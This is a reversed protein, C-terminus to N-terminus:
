RVSSLLLVFGRADDFMPNSQVKYTTYQTNKCMYPHSALGHAASGDELTWDGGRDTHEGDDYCRMSTAGAQIAEARRSSILPLICCARLRIIFPQSTQVM